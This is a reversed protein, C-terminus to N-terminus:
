GSFWHASQKNETEINVQKSFVKGQKRIPDKKYKWESVSVFKNKFDVEM